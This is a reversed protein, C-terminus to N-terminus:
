ERAITQGILEEGGKGTAAAFRLEGRGVPLVVTVIRAELLEGLRRAVLDLLRDLDTESALANGIENLSELQRSWTTAAEYLRANEIAVAAQSALLTVLEEDTDTFEEGVAKEVLRELLAELSLESTIAVGAELLARLRDEHPSVAEMRTLTDSLRRRPTGALAAQRDTRAPRGQARDGDLRQRGARWRGSRPRALRHRDPRGRPGTGARRDSGGSPRGPDGVRVRSGDGGRAGRGGRGRSAGARARRHAHM